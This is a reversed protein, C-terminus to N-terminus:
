VCISEPASGAFGGSTLALADTAKQRSGDTARRGGDTATRGGDIATRAGDIAQRGGDIARQRGATPDPSHTANQRSGGTANPGDIARKPMVVFYRAYGQVSNGASSAVFGDLGPAANSPVCVLLAFRGKANAMAGGVIQLGNKDEFSVTVEEYPTFKAGTVLSVSGAHGKSPNASLDGKLVPLAWASVAPAAVAVAGFALATALFARAIRRSHQM